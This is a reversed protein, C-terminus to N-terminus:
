ETAPGSPALAEGSLEDLAALLDLAMTLFQTYREDTQTTIGSRARRILYSQVYTCFDELEARWLMYSARREEQTMEALRKRALPAFSSLSPEEDRRPQNRKMVM